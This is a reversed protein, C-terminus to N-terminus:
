RTSGPRWCGVRQLVQVARLEALGRETIARRRGRVETLGEDDLRRLYLRVTRESLNQGAAALYEVLRLASAPGAMKSLAILIATRTRDKKDM